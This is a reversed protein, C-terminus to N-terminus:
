FSRDILVTKMNDYLIRQPVGGIADFFREHADILTPFQEDETFWVFSLRSFGLAGVFALLWNKEEASRRGTWRLRNAPPRRSGSSGPRAARSFDDLPIPAVERVCIGDLRWGALRRREDSSLYCFSAM